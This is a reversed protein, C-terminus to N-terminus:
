RPLAGVQASTLERSYIQVFRITGQWQLTGDNRAGIGIAGTGITGDYAAPSADPVLSGPSYATLAAGWTSAISQPANLMDLGAGSTSTSTGDRVRIIDDADANQVYFLRGNTDRAVAFMTGSATAWDTSASAFTTGAADLINGASAYTLVDANRTVAAAATEPTTSSLLTAAETQAFDVYIADTDTVIRIGVDPAALSATIEVRTWDATVTITTWAGGNNVTLDIDGTGTKRKVWLGWAYDTDAIAGLDQIVTGNGATATLSAARTRGDPGAVEDDNATVNTKAWSAHEWNRSRLAINQRQEEARYGFPGSADNYSDTADFAAGTAETVVNSAVTNGNATLFYKVGDVMAGHFPSSLVGVSVYESAATIAQGAVTEVQPHWIYIKSLQGAGERKLMLQPNTAASVTGAAAFRQWSTTISLAAVGPNGVSGELMRITGSSDARIWVSLGFSNGALITDATSNIRDQDAPFDVQWATTGGDPDTAGSTVSATGSKTWAANDLDETTAKILNEVRRAGKFRVEGSLVPKILGEFDLVTATTARTFTATPAGAWAPVVTTQLPANFLRSAWFVDASGGRRRFPPTTM